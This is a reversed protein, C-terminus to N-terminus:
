EWDWRRGNNIYYAVTKHLADKLDTRVPREIVSYLKHNDSCLHWIEWPRKRAPDEQVTVQHGM